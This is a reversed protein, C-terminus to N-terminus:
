NNVKLREVLAQHGRAVAHDLPTRGQRDKISADAGATLLADVIRQHRPGGDGLITAELLATWGLNNVRNLPAGAAILMEVIEVEGQHTAYILASGEYVSTVLTPDAGHKLALEAMQANKKSVATNLLDRKQHNMANANAGSALLLKVAAVNNQKAAQLLLTDGRSDAVELQNPKQKLWQQLKTMDGQSIANFAAQDASVSVSSVALLLAITIKNIAM